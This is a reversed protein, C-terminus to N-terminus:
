NGSEDFVVLQGGGQAIFQRSQDSVNWAEYGASNPIVQLTYKPGFHIALDLVGTSLDIADITASALRPIIEATLDVPAPRGFQHADDLSTFRIRGDEIFRWLCEVVLSARRDFYFVWDYDRREPSHFRFGILWDLEHTYPGVAMIAFYYE